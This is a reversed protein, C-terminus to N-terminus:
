CYGINFSVQFRQTPDPDTECKCNLNTNANPEPDSFALSSCEKQMGNAHSKM